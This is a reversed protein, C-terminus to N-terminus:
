GSSRQGTHVRKTKTQIEHRIYWPRGNKPDRRETILGAVAWRKITRVSVGALAAAERPRILSASQTEMCWLTRRTDSTSM